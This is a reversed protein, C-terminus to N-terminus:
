DGGKILDIPESKSEEGIINRLYYKANLKEGTAQEVLDFWDYRAGHKYFRDILYDSTAPNDIINGNLTRMHHMTQAAILDGIIYNQNYVPVATFHYISAWAGSGEQRGCFIIREMIDWFLKDPNEANTRYLEIEFYIYALMLRLSIIKHENLKNILHPINEELVNEYKILWQPQSIINECFTAMSECIIRDTRDRLMYHDQDIHTFHLAHGYEHFVTSYSGRGRGISALIRIDSPVSVSVCLGNQLKKERPELDFTIGLKDTQFGMNDFTKFITPLLEEKSYSSGMGPWDPDCFLDWMELKDVGLRDKRELYIDLYANRSALNLMDLLGLVRDTTLAMVNIEYEYYHDYYARRALRNREKVLEILGPAIEKGISKRALWANKRRERDPDSHSIKNLYRNTRKEGEFEARYNIFIDKLPRYIRWIDSGLDSWRTLYKIYALRSARNLLPNEFLDQIRDIRRFNYRHYMVLNREKRARELNGTYEGNTYNEWRAAALVTDAKEMRQQIEVLWASDAAIHKPKYGMSWCEAAWLALILVIAKKM